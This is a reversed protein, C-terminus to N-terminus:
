IELLGAADADELLERLMRKALWDASLAGLQASKEGHLASRLTVMGDHIKYSATYLRGKHTLEVTDM